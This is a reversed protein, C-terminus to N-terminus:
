SGSGKGDGAAPKLLDMSRSRFERIGQGLIEAQAENARCKERLKGMRDRIEELSPVQSCGFHRLAEVVRTMSPAMLAAKQVAGKQGGLERAVSAEVFKMREVGEGLGLMVDAQGRAGETIVEFGTNLKVMYENVRQASSQQEQSADLIRKIVFRSQENQALIDRFGAQARLAAQIGEDIVHHGEQSAEYSRQTKLSINKVIGKIEEAYGTSRQALAKIEEVVVAFEREFEGSHAAIIAANLSLLNTNEAVDEIGQIMRNIKDGEVTLMRLEETAERSLGGAAEMLKQLAGFIDTGRKGAKEIALILKETEGANERISRVSIEIENAAAATEDGQSGVWELAQGINKGHKELSEALQELERFGGRFEEGQKRMEDLGAGIGGIRGMSRVIRDQLDASAKLLDEIQHLGTAGMQESNEIWESQQESRQDMERSLREAQGSLSDVEGAVQRLGRDLQELAGTFRAMAVVLIGTEDESITEPQGSFDGAAVTAAFSRVRRIPHVIDQYTLVTILISVLICFLLIWVYNMLLPHVAPTLENDRIVVGFLLDHGPVPIYTALDGQTLEISMQVDTPPRSRGVARGIWEGMITRSRTEWLGLVDSKAGDSGAVWTGGGTVVFWERRLGAGARVSWKALDEATYGILKSRRTLESVAFRAIERKLVDESKTHHHIITFVITFTLILIFTLLLKSRLSVVLSPEGGGDAAALVQYEPSLLFKVVFLGTLSGIAGGFVCATGAKVTQAVTLGVVVYCFISVIVGGLTWCSLGAAFARFPLRLLEDRGAQLTEPDAMAGKRAEAAARTVKRVHPRLMRLYLLVFLPFGSLVGLVLYSEQQVVNRFLNYFYIGVLLVSAFSTVLGGVMLRRSVRWSLFRESLSMM